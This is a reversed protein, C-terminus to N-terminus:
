ENGAVREENRAENRAVKEQLAPRDEHEYREGGHERLLRAAEDSVPDNARNRSRYSFAGWAIAFAIMILGLGWLLEWSFYTSM